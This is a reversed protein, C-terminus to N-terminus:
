IIDRQRQMKYITMFSRSNYDAYVQAYDFVYFHDINILDHFYIYRCYISYISARHLYKLFIIFWVVPTAPIHSNETAPSLNSVYSIQNLKCSKINLCRTNSIAHDDVRM